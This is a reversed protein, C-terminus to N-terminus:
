LCVEGMAVCPTNLPVSGDLYRKYLANNSRWFGKHKISSITMRSWFAKWSSLKRLDHFRAYVGPQALDILKRFYFVIRGRNCPAGSIPNVFLSTSKFKNTALIYDHLCRVPCLINHSGNSNLFAKIVMPKRRFLPSENKALFCPNPFITVSLLNRSFALYKSGRKLSHFESIRCGLAIGLLFICKMALHYPTVQPTLRGSSIYDLVLDLDWKPEVFPRGPRKLWMSRLALQFIRDNLDLSFGLKLPEALASKYSAITNVQFGKVKFVFVLFRLVLDRSMRRDRQTLIFRQFQKWVSEYQRLSSERLAEVVFDVVERCFESGHIHRLFDVRSTKLDCM